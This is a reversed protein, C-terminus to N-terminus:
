ADFVVVKGKSNLGVNRIGMDSWREKSILANLDSFAKYMSLIKLGGKTEEKTMVNVLELANDIEDGIRPPIGLKKYIGSGVVKLLEMWTVLLSVERGSEDLAPFDAYNYIEIVGPGQLDILEYGRKSDTIKVAVARNTTGYVIGERGSGIEVTPVPLQHERAYIKVQELLARDIEM